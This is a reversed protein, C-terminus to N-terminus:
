KVLKLVYKDKLEGNPLEKQDTLIYLNKGSIKYFNQEKQSNTTTIIDGNIMYTGFESFKDLKSSVYTSNLEFTGDKRLTLIQDIKECDACPLSGSFVSNEGIKSDNCGCMLAVLIGFLIFKKM